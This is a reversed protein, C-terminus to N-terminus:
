LFRNIVQEYFPYIRILFFQIRALLPGLQNFALLLGLIVLFIGAATNIAHLAGSWRKLAQFGRGILLACVLLPLGLGASFVALLVIGQFVTGSSTALLLISGLLPGVCPSWGLAFLIGIFFSSVPNSSRLPAPIPINKGHDLWPLKVWGVTFLGLLVILVGGLRQLWIKIILIKGVLSFAAGLIIFAISFGLVYALANNFIRRRLGKLREPDDLSQHGVGSIVSLFAPLLPLTCPGFFTFLGAIFSSFLLGPGFHIM